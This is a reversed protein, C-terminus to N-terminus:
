VGSKVEFDISNLLQGTDILPTSKGKKKKLTAPKLSPDIGARIAEKVDSAIKLGVLSLAQEATIDGRAAKGAATNALKKYKDLNSDFTARLFSRPPNNGSGMEHWFGIQASSSGDGRDADGAHVGVTLTYKKMLDLLAKSWGSDKIVKPM